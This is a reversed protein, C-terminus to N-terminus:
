RGTHDQKPCQDVPPWPGYAWEIPGFATGTMGLQEVVIPYSHITPLGRKAAVIFSRGIDRHIRDHTYDKRFECSLLELGLGKGLAETLFATSPLFQLRAVAAELEARSRPGVLPMRPLYPADLAPTM